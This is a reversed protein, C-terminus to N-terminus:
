LRLFIKCILGGIILGLGMVFLSAYDFYWRKDIREIPSFALWTSPHLLFFLQSRFSFPMCDLFLDYFKYEGLLHKKEHKLVENLVLYDKKLVKNVLIRGDLNYAIGYGIWEIKM